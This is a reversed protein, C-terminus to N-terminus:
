WLVRGEMGGTVPLDVGTLMRSQEYDALFHVARAVDEAQVLERIAKTQLSRKIAAQDKLFDRAMPTVTWAPSVMNIRATPHHKPWENKVSLLLGRLGAKAISYDAHDAEGFSAATSGLLVISPTTNEPSHKLALMERVCLFTSILNQDLTSQFRELPM